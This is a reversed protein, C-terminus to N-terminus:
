HTLALGRVGSAPRPGSGDGGAAGLWVPLLRERVTRRWDELAAVSGLVRLLRGGAPEALGAWLGPALEEALPDLLEVLAPPGLVTLSWYAEEGGAAAAPGLRQRDALRLTRRDAWWHQSLDLEVDAWREGAGVRGALVYEEVAVLAEPAAVVTLHRRLRAGRHPILPVAAWYLRAGPAVQVALRSRARRGEGPLVQEAAVSTLLCRTGTGLDLRLHQRDGGKLGGSQGVLHVERWGGAGTLPTLVRWAGTSEWTVVAGAELGIRVRGAYGTM